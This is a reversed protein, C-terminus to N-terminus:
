RHISMPAPLAFSRSLRTGPLVYERSLLEAPAEGERLLTDGIYLKSPSDRVANRKVEFVYTLTM